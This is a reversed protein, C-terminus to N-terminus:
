RNRLYEIEENTLNNQLKAVIGLQNYSKSEVKISVRRDSNLDENSLFYKVMYENPYNPNIGFYYYNYYSHGNFLLVRDGISLEEKPIISRKLVSKVENSDYFYPEILGTETDELFCMYKQIKGSAITTFSIIEFLKEESIKIEITETTGRNLGDHITGFFSVFFSGEKNILKLNFIRIPILLKLTKFKLNAFQLM